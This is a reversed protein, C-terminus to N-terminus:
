VHAHHLTGIRTVVDRRVWWIRGATLAMLILNTLIIMGFLRLFGRRDSGGIKDPQPAGISGLVASVVLSLTPVIVVKIDRGWIVYCRHLFLGDTVINNAVLLYDGVVDLVDGRSLMRSAHAADGQVGLYFSRWSLVTGAIKLALHVAAFLGMACTTAVLWGRGARIWTHLLYTTNFLLVLLNGFLLLQTCTGFTSLLATDYYTAFLHAEITYNTM